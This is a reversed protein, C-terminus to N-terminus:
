YHGWVYYGGFALIHNKTKDRNKNGKREVVVECGLDGLRPRATAVTAGVRAGAVAVGVM